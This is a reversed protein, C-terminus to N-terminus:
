ELHSPHPVPHRPSQTNTKRWYGIVLSWRGIVLSWHGVVLSWRGIVLKFGKGLGLISAAIAMM